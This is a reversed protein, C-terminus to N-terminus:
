AEERHHAQDSEYEDRHPRPPNLSVKCVLIRVALWIRGGDLFPRDDFLKAPVLPVKVAVSDFSRGTM